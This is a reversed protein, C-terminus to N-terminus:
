IEHVDAIRWFQDGTLIRSVSVSRWAKEGMVTELRGEEKSLAM